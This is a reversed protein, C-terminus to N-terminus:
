RRKTLAYLLLAGGGLLALTAFQQTQATMGVNVGPALRSADLPQLGAQVRQLNIDLVKRQLDYQAAAQAIETLSTLWDGSTGGPAAYPESVGTATGYAGTEDWQGVRGLSRGQLANCAHM